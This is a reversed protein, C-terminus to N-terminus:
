LDFLNIQNFCNVMISGLNWGHTACRQDLLHECGDMKCLERVARICPAPGDLCIMAFFWFGLARMADYADDKLFKSTKSETTADTMTLFFLGKTCLLASNITDRMLIRAGDSVFTGPFRCSTTFNVINKDVSQLARELYKWAARQATWIYTQKNPVRYTAPLSRAAKIMDACTPTALVHPPIDNEVLFLLLKNKFDDSPTSIYADTSTQRMRKAGREGEQRM